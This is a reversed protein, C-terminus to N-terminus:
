RHLHHRQDTRDAHTNRHCQERPHGAVNGVHEQWGYQVPDTWTLVIEANGAM